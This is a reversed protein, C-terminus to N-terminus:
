YVGSCSSSSRTKVKGINNMVTEPDSGSARAVVSALSSDDIRYGKKLFKLMRLFSGAVEEERTVNTYRLKKNLVDEHYQLSVVSSFCEYTENYYVGAQAITYDFSDIMDCPNRYTWRTIVQIDLNGPKKFTTANDTNLRSYGCSEMLHSLDNFNFKYSDSFFLDVDKPEENNLIARIFGGGLYLRYDKMLVLAVTPLELLVQNLESKSLCNYGNELNIGRNQLEISNVMMM